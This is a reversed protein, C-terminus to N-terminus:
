LSEDWVFGQGPRFTMASFAQDVDRFKNRLTKITNLVITQREKASSVPKSRHPEILRYIENISATEGPQSSLLDVISTEHATLSLPQGQWTVVGDVTTLATGDTRPAEGPRFRPLDRQLEEDRGAVVMELAPMPPLGAAIRDPYWKNGTHPSGAVIANGTMEVPVLSHLVRGPRDMILTNGRILINGQPHQKKEKELAIGIMDPNASNPGKQIVNNVITIEGGNPLDITRSDRGLESGIISNEITTKRARSKIEHGEDRSSVLRSDRVILHDGGSMYIAHARGIAGLREFVSDEVIVEGVEGGSLLGQQSDHFHVNRLTLNRGRLRICAGNYDPVNIGSCELGEIVTDNGLIVLAAKGEVATDRLAAGEAATITVSNATLVAGERYDGTEIHLQDGDNLAAIAESFSHFQCNQLGSEATCLTLSSSAAASSPLAPLLILSIILGIGSWWPVGCPAFM